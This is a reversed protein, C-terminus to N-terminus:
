KKKEMRLVYTGDSRSVLRYPTKNFFLIYEDSGSKQSSLYISCIKAVESPVCVLPEYKINYSNLYNKASYIEEDGTNMAEIIMKSMNCVAYQEHITDRIDFRMQLKQINEVINIRESEKLSFFLIEPLTAMDCKKFNKIENLIAEFLSDANKLKVSSFSDLKSLCETNYIESDDLDDIFSYDLRKVLSDTKECKKAIKIYYSGSISDDISKDSCHINKEWKVLINKGILSDTNVSDAKYSFIPDFSYGSMPYVEWPYIDKFSNRLDFRKSNGTYIASWTSYKIPNNKEIYVTVYTATGCYCSLQKKSLKPTPMSKMYRLLKLEMIKEEHALSPEKCIDIKKLTDKKLIDKNVFLEIPMDYEPKKKLTDLNVIEQFLCYEAVISSDLSAFIYSLASCFFLVFIFFNNTKM